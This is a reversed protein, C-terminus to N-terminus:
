HKKFRWTRICALEGKFGLLEWIWGQDMPFHRNDSMFCQDRMVLISTLDPPLPPLIDDLFQLATDHFSLWRLTQRTSPEDILLLQLEKLSIEESDGDDYLIRFWPFLYSHVTGEFSGHPPFDKRIRRGLFVHAKMTEEECSKSRGRRLSVDFASGSTVIDGVM